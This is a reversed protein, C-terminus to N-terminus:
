SSLSVSLVLVTRHVNRHIRHIQTCTKGFDGGGLKAEPKCECFVRRRTVVGYANDTTVLGVSRGVLGVTVRSVGAFRKFEFRQLGTSLISM